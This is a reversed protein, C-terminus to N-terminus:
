VLPTLAEILENRTTHSLSLLDFALTREADRLGPASALTDRCRQAWRLLEPDGLVSRPHPTWQVISTQAGAWAPADFEARYFPHQGTLCVFYMVAVALWDAPPPGPRPEVEDRNRPFGRGTLMPHEWSLVSALGHPELPTGEGWAHTSLPQRLAVSPTHPRLLPYTQANTVFMGLTDTGFGPTALAESRLHVGPDLLVFKERDRLVRLNSPALDGHRAVLLADWLAPLMRPLLERRRERSLAGLDDGEHWPMVLAPRFRQAWGRSRSPDLTAASTGENWLGLAVVEHNWRGQTLRIREAEASLLAFGLWTWEEPSCEAPRTFGVPDGSASDIFVSESWCGADFPLEWPLASPHHEQFWDAGFEQPFWSKTRDPREPRPSKVAYIEDGVRVRFVEFISGAHIKEVVIAPGLPNLVCNPKSPSRAIRDPDM